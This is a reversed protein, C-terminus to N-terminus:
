DKINPIELMLVRKQTTVSDLLRGTQTYGKYKAYEEFLATICMRLNKIIENKKNKDFISFAFVIKGERTPDSIYIKDLLPFFYSYDNVGLSHGYVVVNEFPRNNESTHIYMDQVLRRSTKTFIYRDDNALCLNSDVGFIPGGCTGNINSYIPEYKKILMPSFNFSDISALLNKNCLLSITNDVNDLYTENIERPNRERLIIQKKIFFGFQKEFIRLEEMLMEYFATKSLFSKFGRKKLYAAICVAAPHNFYTVSNDSLIYIVESWKTFKTNKDDNLSAYMMEEIDKWNKNTIAKEEDITNLVFYIDWVNIENYSGLDVWFDDTNGVKSFYSYAKDKFNKYWNFISEVKEPISDFYNKYSTELGCHLDFGNGLVLKVNSLKKIAHEKFEM